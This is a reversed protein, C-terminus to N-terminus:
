MSKIKHFYPNFNRFPYFRVRGHLLHVLVTMLITMKITCIGYMKHVHSARNYIKLKGNSFRPQSKKKKPYLFPNLIIAIISLLSFQDLNWPYCVLVAM